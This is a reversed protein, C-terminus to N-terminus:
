GNEFGYRRLLQNKQIFRGILESITARYAEDIKEYDPEQTNNDLYKTDNGEAREARKDLAEEFEEPFRSKVLNLADEDLMLLHLLNAEDNLFNYINQLAQELDNQTLESSTFYLMDTQNQLPLRLQEKLKIPYALYVEIEDIGHEASNFNLGQDERAKKRKSNVEIIKNIAYSELQEMILRNVLEHMRNINQNNSTSSLLQCLHYEIDLQILSLTVRDGCTRGAKEVKETFIKRFSENKDALVLFNIVRQAFVNSRQLNNSSDKFDGSLNLRELWMKLPLSREINSLIPTDEESIQALNFLYKIPDGQETNDFKLYSKAEENGQAFAKKFYEYAKMTDQSPHYEKLYFKGLTLSAESIGNESAIELYGIATLIEESFTDTNDYLYLGYSYQAPPYGKDAAKKLYFAMDDSNSEIGDGLELIRAYLYEAETIGEQALSHFYEASAEANKDGDQRTILMLGYLYKALGLNLSDQSLIKELNKLLQQTYPLTKVSSLSFESFFYKNELAKQLWAVCAAHKDLDLVDVNKGLTILSYYYQAEAHGQLAAKELYTLSEQFRNNEILTLAIQYQAHPNGKEAAQEIYSQAKQENEELGPAQLLLLGLFLKTTSLIDESVSNELLIKELTEKLEVLEAQCMQHESLQYSIIVSPANLKESLANKLYDFGKSVSSENQILLNGYSIQAGIHGQDAAKELYSMAKISDEATDIGYLLLLGYYYQATIDNNEAAKVLSKLAQRKNILEDPIFIQLCLAEPCDDSAEAIEKYLSTAYETVETVEDDAISQDFYLIKAWEHKAFIVGAQSADRLYEAVKAEKENLDEHNGIDFSLLKAYEYKAEPNKNDAAKKIYEAVKIKRNNLDEHSGFGYALLMAYKYQALPNGNDAALKYYKAAKQKDQRVGENGFLLTKAYLLQAPIHGQNAALEYYKKQERLRREDSNHLSYIDSLARAYKFQADLHGHDAALKFYQASKVELYELDDPHGLGQKLLKAYEYQALPNGSDAAVKYYLAAKQQNEEIGEGHLLMSAYQYAAFSDGQDAALQFYKAAEALVEREQQKSSIDLKFYLTQAYQIQAEVKGQDADKKIQDLSITPETYAPTFDHSAPPGKSILPTMEADSAESESSAEGEEGADGFLDDPFYIEITEEPKIEQISGLLPYKIAQIKQDIDSLHKQIVYTNEQTTPSNNPAICKLKKYISELIKFQERASLHQDKELSLEKELFPYEQTITQLFPLFNSDSYLSSM